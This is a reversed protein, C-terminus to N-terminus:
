KATALKFLRKISPQNLYVFLWIFCVGLILEGPSPRTLHPRSAQICYDMIFYAGAFLSFGWSTLRAWERLDNQMKWAVFFLGIGFLEIFIIADHDHTSKIQGLALVIIVWSIVKLFLGACLLSPPTKPTM